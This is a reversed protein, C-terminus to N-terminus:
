KRGSCLEEFTQGNEHVAKKGTFKEWRNIIVDCYKPDLEMGYCSKGTKEAAIVTSGSGLFSDQIIKIKDQDEIAMEILEVPKMTPHVTNRQRKLEWVDSRLTKEGGFKGHYWIIEHAKFYKDFDQAPNVKNWIIMAKPPRGSEEMARKFLHAFKWSCCIYLCDVDWKIGDKLFQLFSVDDMKDNKIKEFEKGMDRYGINYPPDTFVMDAKKGDMLKEVQDIMTSDGCMLRHNGLIWVDGLKTVPEETVEPVDDPDCEGEIQEVEVDFVKLGLLETDFDIFTDAEEKIGELNLDSWEAIANDAVMDAYEQEESEYDQYDVAVESWKLLKMAALRGHGKVVLGSRNSVVVPARQGQYAIIKALREIQEKSHINPNKPNPKLKKIPELATYACKYNTEPM